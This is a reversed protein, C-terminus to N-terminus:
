AAQPVNWPNVCVSAFGYALAEQCVKEIEDRTADPKLLTHDILRAVEAPTLNM